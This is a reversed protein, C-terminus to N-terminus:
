DGLGRVKVGSIRVNPGGFWVPVGQHPEGKGCTGPFFRLNRDKAVIKGYFDGTTIEVVPNLVPEAIEGNRILYSELGVYRQNWRVDDINWEMYSKMFLGLSVDEIMEEFEMDGPEMYTNSMRVLPEVAYSMARAAGNSRRGLIFATERNLLMESIMGERYLYRLRAPVGEDDYLYFGMSGPITPDEIVTAMRSGMKTGIMDPKVFSEGAQAAERGLVRDAEMPHGSSEHVALGVIEQGLVLELRESPPRGGRLMVRELRSAEESVEEEMNWEGFLEAGGSGGFERWRQMTRGGGELVYNLSAYARPVTSRVHAGDSTLLLKEQMHVSFSAALVSLKAEKLSERVRDEIAKGSEVLEGMDLDEISKKQFVQYSARGLREESMGAKRRKSKSASRAASLAANLADSLSSSSLINTSAFGFGGDLLVRIGVGSSSFSSISLVKGNRMMLSRGSDRQYRVEVYRAGMQMGREILGLLLDEDIEADM